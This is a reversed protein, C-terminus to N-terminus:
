RSPPKKPTFSATKPKSVAHGAGHKLHWSVKDAAAMSKEHTAKEHLASIVSYIKAYPGKGESKENLIKALTVPTEGKNNSVDARAGQELLRFIANEHGERLASMLPTDGDNDAAEIDLGDISFTHDLSLAWGKRALVHLITEGDDNREDAKAGREVLAKPVSVIGGLSAFLPTEGTVENRDGLTAGHDLLLDIAGLHGRRAAIHIARDGTTYNKTTRVPVDAVHPFAELIQKLGELDGNEIRHWLSLPETLAAGNFASSATNQAMPFLM